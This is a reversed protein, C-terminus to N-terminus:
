YSKEFEKRKFLVKKNKRNRFCIFVTWFFITACGILISKNLIDMGLWIILLLFFIYGLILFVLLPYRIWRSIKTNKSIEISGELVLEVILEFLIEM